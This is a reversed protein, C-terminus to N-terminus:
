NNAIDTAPTACVNGKIDAGGVIQRRTLLGPSSIPQVITAGGDRRCKGSSAASRGPCSDRCKGSAVSAHIRM